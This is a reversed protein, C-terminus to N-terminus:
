VIRKEPYKQGIRTFEPADQEFFSVIGQSSKLALDYRIFLCGSENMHQKTFTNLNIQLHMEHYIKAWSITLVHTTPCQVLM